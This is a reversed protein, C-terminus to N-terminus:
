ASTVPAKSSAIEEVKIRTSEILESLAKRRGDAFTGANQGAVQLARVARRWHKAFPGFEGVGSLARYTIEPAPEATAAGPEHKAALIEEVKGRMGAVLAELAKKREEFYHGAQKRAGKVSDLARQWHTEFMGIDAEGHSILHKEKIHQPVGKVGSVLGIWSFAKIIYYSTDIEYWFFGQNASHMYHHHNNHWGEGGTLLAILLNNRSTENTAYRRSGFVHALSNVFFTTHYLLVTSGFFAFFLTGWGTKWGGLAFSVFFVITGLAVPPVLHHKNIFRLEPYKMLDPILDERTPEYKSCLIWMMHSWWFGRRVPSHIDEPQDSYKHHHRHHAAWWLAGKQAAMGGVLAVIFQMVRGMRYTRHAFYRHYGATLATMRVYYLIFFALLDWATIGTLIAFFPMVHLLTFPLSTFKNFREDAARQTIAM